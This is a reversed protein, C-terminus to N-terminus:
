DIRVRAFIQTVSCGEKRLAKTVANITAGTDLVNDVAIVNAGRLIRFYAGPIMVRDRKRDYGAMAFKITEGRRMMTGAVIAAYPFGSVMIPLVVAGKLDVGELAGSMDDSAYSTTGKGFVNGGASWSRIQEASVSTKSLQVFISDLEKRSSRSGSLASSWLRRIQAENASLTAM